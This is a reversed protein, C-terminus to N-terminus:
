AHDIRYYSTAVVVQGPEVTAEDASAFTMGTEVADYFRELVAEELQDVHAVSDVEHVSEVPRVTLGATPANGKTM